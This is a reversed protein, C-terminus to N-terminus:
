TSSHGVREAASVRSASILLQGRSFFIIKTFPERRHLRKWGNKKKPLYPINLMGM